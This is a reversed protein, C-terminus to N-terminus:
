AILWIGLFLLSAFAVKKILSAREIDEKIITPAIATLVLGYLIGFFIQTNGVTSVLATPGISYAFFTLSKSLVFMGENVFMVGLALRRITKISESFANRMSPFLVYLMIGGLAIGWSEYSLIKSFSNTEITFKVLIAAIAWLVDVILIPLLAPSLRFMNQKGEFAVGVVAIMILTFALGQVLTVTEKLFIFSFLMVFLPTAKFFIILKSVEESSIARFYLALAWVNLMGTVLIIVTDRASLFPYGTVVWFITGMMLGMIASYIAMGRYDKVESEVIYKDSFNIGADIAPALLAFFLWNL